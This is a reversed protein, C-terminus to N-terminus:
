SMPMEAKKKKKILMTTIDEKEERRQSFAKVFGRGKGGDAGFKAEARKGALDCVFPSM